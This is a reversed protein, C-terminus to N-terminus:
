PRGPVLWDLGGGHLTFPAHYRQDLETAACQPCLLRIILMFILAFCGLAARFIHLAACGLQLMKGRATFGRFMRQIKVAASRTDPEAIGRDLPAVAVKETGPALVRTSLLFRAAAPGPVIPQSSGGGKKRRLKAIAKLKRFISWPRPLPSPVAGVHEVAGTSVIVAYIIKLFRGRDAPAVMIAGWSSEDMGVMGAVTEVGIARFRILYRGLNQWKLWAELTSNELAPMPLEAAAGDARSLAVSVWEGDVSVAWKSVLMDKDVYYGSEGQVTGPCAVMVTASLVDVRTRTFWELSLPGVIASWAGAAADHVYFSVTKADGSDQYWGSCGSKAGLTSIGANSSM